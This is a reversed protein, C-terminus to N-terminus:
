KKFDWISIKGIDFLKSREKFSRSFPTDNGENRIFYNVDTTQITWAWRSDLGEAVIKYWLWSNMGTRNKVEFPGESYFLISSPSRMTINFDGMKDQILYVIDDETFMNVGSYALIRRSLSIDDTFVMKDIYSRTWLAANVTSDEAWYAGEGENESIRGFQTYEAFGVSLAMLFLIVYLAVKRKQSIGILNMIGYSVLLAEFPLMFFKSYILISLTPLLFFIVLLLFKEELTKNNKFLLSFFGGIILLGLVSIYRAFSKILTLTSVEAITFQIYFIVFLIILLINWFLKSSKIQFNNGTLIILYSLIIPITIYFLNHSAVLLIFLIFVLFCYKIKIFRSKILLYIFLPLLVLILGRGSASWTTYLLIGPSTSYVLATIFKFIKDDKIAGAMLYATFISFLGMSSLFIWISWEMGLSISQSVGSLLFPLTSATSFPYIGFISLPSVWWKAHGNMSVSDSIFHFLFTDHGIQHPTVPIRMIVNIFILSIWLLIWVRKSLAKKM